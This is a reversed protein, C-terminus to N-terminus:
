SQDWGEWPGRWTRRRRRSSWDVKEQSYSSAYRKSLLGPLTPGRGIIKTSQCRPRSLEWRLLWGWPRFRRGIQRHGVEGQGAGAEERGGPGLPGRRGREATGRGACCGGPQKGTKRPQTGPLQPPGLVRFQETGSKRAAASVPERKRGPDPEGAPRRDQESKSQSSKLSPSSPPSSGAERHGLVFSPRHRGTVPAGDPQVAAPPFPRAHHHQRHHHHHLFLHRYRPLVGRRGIVIEGASLFLLFFQLFSIHGHLFNLFIREHYLAFSKSRIYELFNSIAKQMLYSLFQSSVEFLFLNLFLAFSEWVLLKEGPFFIFKM